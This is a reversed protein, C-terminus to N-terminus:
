VRSMRKTRYMAADAAALAEDPSQGPGALGFGISGGARAVGGDVAFQEDFCMRVAEATREAEPAGAGPLLVAFEDGGLRAVTAAPGCVGSVREAVGRLLDDGAHHGLTDNVAKFGDLDILLVAYPEGAAVVTEFREWLLARNPLGTLADHFAARQLREEYDRRATVDALALITGNEAPVTEVLVRVCVGDGRVLRLELGTVGAPLRWLDVPAGDDGYASLENIEGTLAAAAPNILVIGGDGDVVIVPSPLRRLLEARERSQGELRRLLVQMGYVLFTVFMGATAGPQMNIGAVLPVAVTLGVFGAVTPVLRRLPGSVARFFLLFYMLCLM